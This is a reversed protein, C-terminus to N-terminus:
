KIALYTTWVDVYKKSWRHLKIFRHKFYMGFGALKRPIPSDAIITRFKKYKKWLDKIADSFRRFNHRFVRYDLVRQAGKPTMMNRKFSPYYTYVKHQGEMKNNTTPMKPDKQCAIIKPLSSSLTKFATLLHGKRKGELKAITSRLIELQIYADTEHNSDIIRYYQSLLWRWEDPIPKTSHESLGAFAKVHRSVAWKVHTLCNQLLIHKFSRTRFLSGLNTTMDKILGEIKLECNKRGEMLVERGADRGMETSIKAVPVFGTNVDITDIAYMREGAIRMHIEDYGLYGSSPIPTSELLERLDDQIENVWNVITSEAIKLDFDIRFVRKIQGPMLGEMYHQRARRKYNEHYTGYEPFLASYDPKIEGCTKCRKRHIRFEHKGLGKDLVAIRKNYGNYVLRQHCSLCHTERIEISGDPKLEFSYSEDSYLNEAEEESKVLAHVGSNPLHPYFKNLTTQKVSIPAANGEIKSVSM